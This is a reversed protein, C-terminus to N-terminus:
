DICLDHTLGVSALCAVKCVAAIAVRSQTPALLWWAAVNGHAHQGDHVCDGERPEVKARAPGHGRRPAGRQLYPHFADALCCRLVAFLFRFWASPWVVSHLSRVAVSIRARRVRRVSEAFGHERVFVSRAREGCSSRMSSDSATWRPTKSARKRRWSSLTSVGAFRVRAPQLRWVFLCVFLWAFHVCYGVARLAACLM